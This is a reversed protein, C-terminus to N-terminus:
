SMEYGILRLSGPISYYKVTLSNKIEVRKWTQFLILSSKDVDYVSVAAM